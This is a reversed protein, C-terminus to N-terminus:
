TVCGKDKKKNAAKVITKKKVPQSYVVVEENEPKQTSQLPKRPAVPQFVQVQTDPFASGEDEDESSSVAIENQDHSEIDDTVSVDDM